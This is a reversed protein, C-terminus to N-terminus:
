LGEADLLAVFARPSLVRIGRHERLELLHRDGSVIIDAEGTVGCALVHDDTPDNTIVPPVEAPEVITAAVRISGVERAIEEASLLHRRRLHEYSLAREYEALLAPSGILEYGGRRWAEMIRGPISM